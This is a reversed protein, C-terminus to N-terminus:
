THDRPSKDAVRRLLSLAALTKADATEEPHELLRTLPYRVVSIDEDDDPDGQVSTLGRALFAHLLENAFGPSSFFSGLPQWERAELGVEERLERKAASLPAEDPELGGAPLELLHRGIPHRYQRVLYVHEEDDLAVIVVAGPHDVVERVAIGGWPLTIEDVRLSVVKGEYVKRSSVVAPLAELAADGAGGRGASPRM